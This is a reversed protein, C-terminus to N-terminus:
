FLIGLNIYSRLKRTQDSYMASIELPGLAFNYAFGLSYGSFFDPEQVNNDFDVFDNVLGNVKGMVYFNNFMEYRVAALKPRALSSSSYPNFSPLFNYGCNLASASENFAM